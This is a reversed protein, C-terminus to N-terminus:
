ESKKILVETKCLPCKTNYKVADQICYKHFIHHCSISLVSENVIFEELCIFCKHNRAKTPNFQIEQYNHSLEIEDNRQMNEDQFHSLSENMVNDLIEDELPSLYFQFMQERQLRPPMPPFIEIEQFFQEFNNFNINISSPELEQINIYISPQESNNSQSDTMSFLPFHFSPHILNEYSGTDGFNM